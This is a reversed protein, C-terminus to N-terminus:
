AYSGGSFNIFGFTIIRSLATKKGFTYLLMVHFKRGAELCFKFFGSRSLRSNGTASQGAPDIDGAGPLLIIKCLRMIVGIFEQNFFEAIVPRTAAEM